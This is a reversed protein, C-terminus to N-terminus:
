CVMQSVSGFDELLQDLLFPEEDDSGLIRQLSADNIEEVTHRLGALLPKRGVTPM